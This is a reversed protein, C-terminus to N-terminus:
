YIRGMGLVTMGDCECLPLQPPGASFGPDPVRRALQGAGRLEQLQQRRVRSRLLRSRQLLCRGTVPIARTRSYGLAIKHM